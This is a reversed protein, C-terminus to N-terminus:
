LPFAATVSFVHARHAATIKGKHASVIARAASLGIGHGDANTARSEEKRAFRDFLREVDETGEEETPNEVTLLLRRGYREARLSVTSGRPSYRFANDLLLSLLKEVSPPDGLLSLDAPLSADIRKEETVARARFSETVASATDSLSFVRMSQAPLEEMRSLAVLSDTLSCLRGAAAEIDALCEEEGLELRLLETNARIVTLPTKLEHGADTIFRKQKERSEAVPRLIRGALVALLVSGVAFACLAILCSALLFSSLDDMRRGMDLFVIREISDKEWRMYRFRDLYGGKGEAREAYDMAAEWDVAAIRDLDVRIVLGDRLTVSFFRTEYPTEPSVHPPLPPGGGPFRGDGECLLTLLSDASETMNHLNLLHIGVVTVSLLLFLAVISLLTFKLRLARIM